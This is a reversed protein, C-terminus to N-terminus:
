RDRYDTDWEAEEDEIGTKVGLDLSTLLANTARYASQSVETPILLRTAVSRTETVDGRRPLAHEYTIQCKAESLALFERIGQVRIVDSSADLTSDVLSVSQIDGIQSRDLDLSGSIGIRGLDASDWLKRGEETQQYLPECELIYAEVASRLPSRAAARVEHEPRSQQRLETRRLEAERLAKAAREKADLIQSHRTREVFEDVTDAVHVIEDPIDQTDSM